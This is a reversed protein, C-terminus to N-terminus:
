VERPPDVTFGAGRLVDAIAPATDASWEHGSLIAQVAALADLAYDVFKRATRRDESVALRAVYLADALGHSTMAASTLPHSVGGQATREALRYLAKQTAAREIYWTGITPTGADAFDHDMCQAFARAMVHLEQLPTHRDHTPTNSTM